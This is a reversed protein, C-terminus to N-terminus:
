TAGYTLTFVMQRVRDQTIIIGHILYLLIFHLRSEASPSSTDVVPTKRLTLSKHEQSELYHTHKSSDMKAYSSNKPPDTLFM